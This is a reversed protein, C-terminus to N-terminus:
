RRHYFPLVILAAFGIAAVLAVAILSYILKLNPGSSPPVEDNDGAFEPEQRELESM